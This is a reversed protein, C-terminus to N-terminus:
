LAGNKYPLVNMYSNSIYITNSYKNFLVGVQYNLGVYACYLKDVLM